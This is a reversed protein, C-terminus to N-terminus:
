CRHARPFEVPREAEAVDPRRTLLQSPLGAVVVPDSLDDLSGETVDIGDPAGGVLIALAYVAQRRQQELPPLAAELLAVATEQQAVDLATVTGASAELKLGALIRRGNDLNDRALRLRDRFELAQFYTEAVSRLVTLAVTQRAFRSADAQARAAGRLSRNRGWFDLEYSATLQPNFINLTRPGLSLGGHERTADATLDAAPLLSAGAIRVEADAEQVRAVAAALDDNGAQAAAMFHDLETSGFSRWWDPAPWLPRADGSAGDPQVWGVPLPVAPRHYVPGVTCAALVAATWVGFAGACCYRTM